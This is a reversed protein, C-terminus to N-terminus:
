LSYDIAWIVSLVIEKFFLIHMAPSMLIYVFFNFISFELTPWVNFLITIQVTVIFVEHMCVPALSWFDEESLFKTIGLPVLGIVIGALFTNVLYPLFNGTFIWFEPFQINM